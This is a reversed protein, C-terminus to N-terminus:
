MRNRGNEGTIGEAIAIGSSRSTSSSIESTVSIITNTESVGKYTEKAQVTQGKRERCTLIGRWIMELDGGALGTGRDTDGSEELPKITEAGTHRRLRVM